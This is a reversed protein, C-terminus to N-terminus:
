GHRLDLHSAPIFGTLGEYAVTLGGKVARLGKVTVVKKKM